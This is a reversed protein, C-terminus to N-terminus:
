AAIDLPEDEVVGRLPERRCRELRQRDDGVLLGDRTALDRLDTADIGIADNTVQLETAVDLRDAV